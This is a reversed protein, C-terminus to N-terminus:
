TGSIKFVGCHNLRRLSKSFVKQRDAIQTEWRGIQREHFDKQRYYEIDDIEGSQFLTLNNKLARRHKAVAVKKQEELNTDDANHKGSQSQVAIDAMIEAVNPHVSLVNVLRVFDDEIVSAFVSNTQCNCLRRESHRYRLSGLKQWGIIRARANPSNERKAKEDCHACYLLPSLAFIHASRVTGTPQVIV